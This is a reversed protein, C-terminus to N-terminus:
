KKYQALMELFRDILGAKQIADYHGAIVIDIPLHLDKLRQLTRSYEVLDAGDMNGLQPKLACGGYLIKEDPFWVFIDDPSHSPGLYLAQIAGGQLEFNGPYITDPLVVPVDPYDRVFAQTKKIQAAGEKEMLDRTLATSIIKAGIKKFYANGGFRDPDHNTDVVETIPLSTVKQIERVLAEATQPTITAGVVTVHDKGIYVVSNERLYANDEVLYVGGKLPTFKLAPAAASLAPMLLIAAVAFGAFCRKM